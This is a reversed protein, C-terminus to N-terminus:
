KDGKKKKMKIYWDQEGYFKDSCDPCLSHSFTAESHEQIFADIQNWYGKDDRIKKCSSCIPLLGQLRKIEEEARKQETLDRVATVRVKQNKYSSVKGHVEIPITTGNKRLGLTEYRGEYGSLIKNQINQREEPAVFDTVSIGSAEERTYGFMKELSKNADIVKANSTILIGEFSADSLSHFREESDMLAKNSEMLEATRENVTKELNDRHRQLEIEVLKRRIINLTLAIILIVLITFTIIATWVIKKNREYFSYPKNIVHSNNPLADMTIKFRKMVTYDFIYRTPSKMLVPISDASKGNLIQLAMDAAAKGQDYGTIIRGGLVGTSIHFNWLTYVPIPSAASILHGNEIPTLARGEGMDSTQGILFLASEDPIQSLTKKIEAIPADKLIIIKYQDQYKPIISEETKEAIKRSSIDGTSIIFVLTQIKPQIYLATDILGKIDMEENIGTINNLDNLVDPRFSNYGCFVIPIGPFLLKRYKIAFDFAANDSVIILDFRYEGYKVNILDAMKAQVEEGAFRRSDLYEISLECNEATLEFRELLGNEIDDSWRYGPHYSNIYLIRSNKKNEEAPCKGYLILNSLVCIIFITLFAFRYDPSFIHGGFIGIRKDNVM